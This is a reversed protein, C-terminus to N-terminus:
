AKPKVWHQDPIYTFTHQWSDANIITDFLRGMPIFIASGTLYQNKIPIDLHYQVGENNDPDIDNQVM